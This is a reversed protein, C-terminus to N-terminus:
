QGTALNTIRLGASLPATGAVLTLGITGTQLSELAFPVGFAAADGSLQLDNFSITASNIIKADSTSEIDLYQNIKISDGAQMNELNIYPSFNGAGIAGISPFVEIGVATMQLTEKM